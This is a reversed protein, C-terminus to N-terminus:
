ITSDRGCHSAMAKAKPDYGLGKHVDSIITRQRDTSSIVLRINNYILQGHFISFPKCAKRFNIKKGKERIIHSPYIADFSVHHAMKCVWFIRCNIQLFSNNSLVVCEFINLREFIRNYKNSIIEKWSLWEPRIYLYDSEIKM